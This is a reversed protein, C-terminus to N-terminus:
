ATMIASTALGSGIMRPRFGTQIRDNPRMKWPFGSAVKGSFAGPRVCHHFHPPPKARDAAGGHAAQERRSREGTEARRGRERLRV